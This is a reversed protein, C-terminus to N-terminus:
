DESTDLPNSSFYYDGMSSDRETVVIHDVREVADSEEVETVLDDIERLTPAMGVAYVDYTGIGRVVHWFRMEGLMRFVEDKAGEEDVAEVAIRVIEWRIDEPDLLFFVTTTDILKSVRYRIGESSMEYGAQQVKEAIESYPARPDSSLIQLILSDIDDINESHTM